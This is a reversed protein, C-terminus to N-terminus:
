LHSDIKAIRRGSKVTAPTCTWCSRPSRILKPCATVRRIRVKHGEKKDHPEDERDDSSRENFAGNFPSDRLAAMWLAALALAAFESPSDKPPVELRTMGCTNLTSPDTVEVNLALMDILGNRM